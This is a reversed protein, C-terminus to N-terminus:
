LERTVAASQDRFALGDSDAMIDFRRTNGSTTDLALRAQSTSAIHVATGPSSTGIGVNGNQNIVFREQAGQIISFRSSNFYALDSM